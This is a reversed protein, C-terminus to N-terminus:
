SQDSLRRRALPSLDTALYTGDALSHVRLLGEGQMARLVAGVTFGSLELAEPEFRSQGENVLASLLRLRVDDVDVGRAAEQQLWVRDPLPDLIWRDGGAMERVQILRQASLAHISERLRELGIGESEAAVRVNDSYLLWGSAHERIDDVILQFVREDVPNATWGVVTNAYRPGPGLPPKVSRGFVSDVIGKVVGDLGIRPVSLWLLHHLSEPVVVDEDLIVPLLRKSRGSNIRRVVGADLEDRVWPKAVSVRSLVVVFVDAQSIGEEFIRDVLSDGAAMEWEDLWCDIGEQRLQTAFSRVFRDKDESAHSIFARPAATQDTM